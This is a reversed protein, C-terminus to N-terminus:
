SLLEKTLFDSVNLNRNGCKVRDSGDKAKTVEYKEPIVGHSQSLESLLRRADLNQKIEQFENKQEQNRSQKLENLDRTLQSTVNDSYRGTPKVARQSVSDRRLENARETRQHELQNPAHDPLLMESRETFRVVGLSSLSRM